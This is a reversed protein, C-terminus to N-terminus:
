KSRDERNDSPSISRGNLRGKTRVRSPCNMISTFTHLSETHLDFVSEYKLENSYEKKIKKNTQCNSCKIEVEM